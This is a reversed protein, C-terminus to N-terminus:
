LGSPDFGLKEIKARVGAPDKGDRIAKNAEAILDAPPPKLIGPAAGPASLGGGPKYYTGGRIQNVRDQKIKKQDQVLEMALEISSQRIKPDAAPDAAIALHKKMEYETTAGKMVEGMQIIAQQSLVKGMESTADAAEKNLGPLNRVLPGIVPINAAKSGIEGREAAGYGTFAKPNLEKARELARITADFVPIEDEAKGIAVKDTATLEGQKKLLFSRGQESGPEIGAARLVRLQEPEDRRSATYAAIRQNGRAIDQNVGMNQIQAQTLANTNALQTLNTVAGMDGHRLAVQAMDQLSPQQGNAAMGQLEARLQAQRYTDVLKALPSFDPSGVNVLSPLQLQNIGAM